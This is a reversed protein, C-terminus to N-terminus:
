SDFDRRVQSRSFDNIRDNNGPFWAAPCRNLVCYKKLILERAVHKLQDYSRTM